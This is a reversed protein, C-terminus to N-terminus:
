KRTSMTSRQVPRRSNEFRKIYKSFCAPHHTYTKYCHICMHYSFPEDGVTKLQKNVIDKRITTAELIRKRSKESSTPEKKTDIQFITCKKLKTDISGQPNNILPIGLVDMM